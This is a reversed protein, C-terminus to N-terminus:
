KAPNSLGQLSTSQGFSTIKKKKKEVNTLQVSIQVEPQDSNPTTSMCCFMPTDHQNSIAAAQNDVSCRRVASYHDQSM